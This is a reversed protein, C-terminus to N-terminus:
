LLHRCNLHTLAAFAISVAHFFFQPKVNGSAAPMFLYFSVSRSRSLATSIYFHLHLHFHFHFHSTEVCRLSRFLKFQFCITIVFSHWKRISTPPSIRATTVFKGLKMISSIRKSRIDKPQQCNSANVTCVNEILITRGFNSHTRM